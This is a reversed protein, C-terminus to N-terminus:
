AQWWMWALLLVQLSHVWVSWALAWKGANRVALAWWWVTCQWREGAHAADGLLVTGPGHLKSCKIRKGAWNHLSRPPPLM